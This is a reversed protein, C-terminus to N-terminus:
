VCWLTGWTLELGVGARASCSCCVKHRQNGSSLRAGVVGLAFQIMFLLFVFLGLGGHHGRFHKGTVMGVAIFFGIFTFVMGLLQLIFHVVRWRPAQACGWFCARVCSSIEVVSQANFYSRVWLICQGHGLACVSQTGPVLVSVLAGLPQAFGIGLFSVGAHALLAKSWGGSPNPPPAFVIQGTSFNITMTQVWLSVLM